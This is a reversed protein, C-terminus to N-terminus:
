IAKAHDSRRNEPVRAFARGKKRVGREASSMYTAFQSIGLLFPFRHTEFTSVSEVCGGAPSNVL